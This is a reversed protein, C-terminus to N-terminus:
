VDHVIPFVSFQSQERELTISSPKAGDSERKKAFENVTWAPGVLWTVKYWQTKATVFFSSLLGGFFSDADCYCCNRVVSLEYFVAKANQM